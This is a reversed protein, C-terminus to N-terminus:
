KDVNRDGLNWYKTIFRLINKLFQEYHYFKVSPLVQDPLIINNVSM